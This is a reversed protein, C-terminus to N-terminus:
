RARTLVAIARRQSAPLPVAQELRFLPALEAALAGPDTTWALLVGGPALFDAAGLLEPLEGLARTTAVLFGGRSLEEVREELVSANELPVSRVAHRLFAARKRRPELLTVRVDGRVIALPVGPFGAGSGIDIVQAGHPILAAGAASELAHACLDEPALDGTLNVRRRWGDLEGLYRSIAKLDPHTLAMGRRLAEAELLKEFAEPPFGPAGRSM